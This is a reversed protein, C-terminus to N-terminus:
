TKTYTELDSELPATRVTVNCVGTAFHASNELHLFNRGPSGYRAREIRWCRISLRVRFNQTRPFGETRGVPSATRPGLGFHATVHPWCADSTIAPYSIAQHLRGPCPGFVTSAFWGSNRAWGCIAKGRRLLRPSVAEPSDTAYEGRLIRTSASTLRRTWHSRALAGRWWSLCGSLRRGACQECIILM